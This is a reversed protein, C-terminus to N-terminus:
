EALLDALRQRARQWERQVTRISVDLARATEAESMGGFYRCEFVAVLSKDDLRDLADELELLFLWDPDDAVLNEDLPLNAIGRGRKSAQRARANDIVVQRMIRASLRFFHARDNIELTQADCFRLFCEHVLGTASLTHGADIQRGALMRLDAYILSYIKELAAGDGRRHARLLLTLEGIEEM